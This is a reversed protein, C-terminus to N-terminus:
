LIACLFGKKPQALSSHELVSHPLQLPELQGQVAKLIHEKHFSSPSGNWTLLRRQTHIEGVANQAGEWVLSDVFSTNALEGDSTDVGSVVLLVNGGANKSAVVLFDNYMGDRDTILVRGENYHCLIVLSADLGFADSKLEKLQLKKPTVAVQKVGATKCVQEVHKVLQRRESGLLAYVHVSTM